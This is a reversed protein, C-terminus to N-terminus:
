KIDHTPKVLFSASSKSTFYKRNFAFSSSFLSNLVSVQLKFCSIARHSSNCKLSSFVFKHTSNKMLFVFFLSIELLKHTSLAVTFVYLHRKFCFNFLFYFNYINQRDLHYFQLPKTYKCLRKKTNYQLHFFKFLLNTFNSFTIFSRAFHRSVILDCNSSISLLSQLIAFHKTMEEICLGSTLVM